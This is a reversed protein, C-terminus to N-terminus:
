LDSHHVFGRMYAGFTDDNTNPESECTSGAVYKVYQYEKEDLANDRYIMRTDRIKAGETTICVPVLNRERDAQIGYLIVGKAVIYTNCSLLIYQGEYCEGARLGNETLTGGCGTVTAILFLLCNFRFLSFLNIRMAFRGVM